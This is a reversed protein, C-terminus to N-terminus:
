GYIQGMIRGTLNYFFLCPAAADMISLEPDLSRAFGVLVCVAVVLSAYASDITVEHKRCLQLVKILVKNLDIPSYKLNCELAFLHKMDAVLLNPNRCTQEHPWSFQLLHYAAHEGDGAGIMMIFSLFHYRVVPTLEEALGFDLLVLQIKQQFGQVGDANRALINGPHLDTHVFNDTLMMKLYTDVGAAAIQTNLSTRNRLFEHLAQGREFGEVIVGESVLDPILKPFIITENLTEFNQHFRALNEAEVRLDAQATLTHSFQDISERLKLWRLPPLEQAWNALAGMIQFDQYIRLAVSPHRVKVAVETPMGERRDRLKAKYVQAISGSACPREPFDEFLDEISRGLNQVIAKRTEVYSHEPAKDHLRGLCRCLDEPFLDERTASWQGWKIFAAGGKELCFRLLWWLAERLKLGWTVIIVTSVFYIVPGFIILPGFVILLYCGRIILSSRQQIRRWGRPVVSFELYLNDTGEGWSFSGSGGNVPSVTFFNQQTQMNESAPPISLPLKLPVLATSSDLRKMPYKKSSRLPLPTSGMVWAKDHLISPIITITTDEWIDVLWGVTPPHRFDSLYSCLRQAAWRHRQRWLNEGVGASGIPLRKVQATTQAYGLAVPLAAGLCELTRYIEPYFRSLAPVGISLLLSATSFDQIQSPPRGELEYAAESDKNLFKLIQGIAFRGFEAAAMCTMAITIVPGSFAQSLLLVSAANMVDGASGLKIGLRESHRKQRCLMGRRIVDAGWASNEARNSIDPGFNIHVIRLALNTSSLGGGIGLGMGLKLPFSVRLGAEEVRTRPPDDKFRFRNQDGELLPSYLEQLTKGDRTVWEPEQSFLETLPRAKVSSLKGEWINHQPQHNQQRERWGM